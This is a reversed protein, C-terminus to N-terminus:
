VNEQAYFIAVQSMTLVQIPSWHGNLHRLSQQLSFYLLILLPSVPGGIYVGIYVTYTYTYIYIYITIATILPGSVEYKEIFM